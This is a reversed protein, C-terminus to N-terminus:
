TCFRGAIFLRVNSTDVPQGTVKLEFEYTGDYSQNVNKLVLIGLTTVDSGPLNKGIPQPDGNAIAVALVRKRLGDSSTFSWTRTAVNSIDDDFRWTISQDSGPLVVLETGDAPSTIKALLINIHHNVIIKRVPFYDKRYLFFDYIYRQYVSFASHIAM